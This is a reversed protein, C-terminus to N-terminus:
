STTQISGILNLAELLGDRLLTDVVM